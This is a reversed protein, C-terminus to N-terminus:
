QEERMDAGCDPCYNYEMIAIISPYHSGCHSCRYWCNPEGIWKSKIRPKEKLVEIAIDIAETDTRSAAGGGSIFRKFNGLVKIAEETNM